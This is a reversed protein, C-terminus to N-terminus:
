GPLPTCCVCLASWCYPLETAHRWARRSSTMWGTWSFFCALPTVSNGSWIPSPPGSPTTVDAFVRALFTDWTDQVAQDWLGRLTLYVPAYVGRLRSPSAVSCCDFLLRLLQTSKGAGAGGLLLLRQGSTGDSLLQELSQPRSLSGDPLRERVPIDLVLPHPFAETGGYFFAEPSPLPAPTDSPRASFWPRRCAMLQTSATQVRAQQHSDLFTSRTPTLGHPTFPPVAQTLLPRLWEWTSHHCAFVVANESWPPNSLEALLSRLYPPPHEAPVLDDLGSLLLLVGGRHLQALLLRRDLEPHPSQPSGAQHLIQPVLSPQTAFPLLRLLIPLLTGRGEQYRQAWFRALGRLVDDAHQHYPSLLVARHVTDRRTYASTEFAIAPTPSTLYAQLLAAWPQLLGYVEVAEHLTAAGHVTIGQAQWAKRDLTTANQSPLIVATIPEGVSLGAALRANWTVVGQLKEVVGDVAELTGDELVRGTVAVRRNVQRQSLRALVALAVALGLSSGRYSADSAADGLYLHVALVPADAVTRQGYHCAARVAMQTADQLALAAPTLHGAEDRELQVAYTIAARPAARITVWLPQVVGQGQRVLLSQVIYREWGAAITTALGSALAHAQQALHQVMTPAQAPDRQTFGEHLQSPSLATEVASIAPFAPSAPLSAQQWSWFCPALALCPFDIDELLSLWALVAPHPQTLPAEPLVQYCLPLVTALFRDEIVEWLHRLARAQFAKILPTDLAETATPRTTDLVHLWQSTRACAVVPEQAYLWDAVDGGDQVALCQQLRQLPLGPRPVTWFAQSLLQQYLYEDIGPM